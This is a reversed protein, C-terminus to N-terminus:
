KIETEYTHYSNLIIFAIIMAIPGGALVALQITSLNLSIIFLVLQLMGATCGTVIIIIILLIAIAGHKKIWWDWYGKKM